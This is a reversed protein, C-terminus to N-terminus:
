KENDNFKHTKKKREGRETDAQKVNEPDYLRLIDRVFGIIKIENLLYKKHKIYLKVNTHKNKEEKKKM